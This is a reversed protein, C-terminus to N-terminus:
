KVYRSDSRLFIPTTLFSLHIFEKRSSIPSIYRVVSGRHVGSESDKDSCCIGSRLPHIDTKLANSQLSTIHRCDNNSLGGRYSARTRPLVTPSFHMVPHVRHSPHYPYHSTVSTATFPGSYLHPIAFLDCSHPSRHRPRQDPTTGSLGHRREAEVEPTSLSVVPPSPKRFNDKMQCSQSGQSPCALFSSTFSSPTNSYQLQSGVTSHDTM